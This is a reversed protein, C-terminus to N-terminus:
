RMMLMKIWFLFWSTPGNVDGPDLQTNGDGVVPVQRGYGGETVVCRTNMWVGMMLNHLVMEAWLYRTEM